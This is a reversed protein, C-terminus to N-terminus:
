NGGIVRASVIKEATYPEKLVAIVLPEPTRFRRPVDAFVRSNKEFTKKHVSKFHVVYTVMSVSPGILCQTEPLPASNLIFFFLAKKDKNWIWGSDYLEFENDRLKKKLYEFAKLLKAGVVDEKGQRAAVDILVLKNNGARTKIDDLTLEKKVFFDLSPQKLFQHARTKFREAKAYDMAAAANREKQIPDVVIIPSQLKSANLVHLANGKHANYFDIITKDKWGQSAKLLNVFGGYYITLIDVVHGSFGKIYSEAGYVGVAKCFSKTLKIEDALKKNKALHKRVWAVHLPSCDTINAAADPDKIDLVPIIEFTLPSASTTLQFYDRSGHLRAVSVHKLKGLVGGLLKSIDKFRYFYDFAVFVDVDHDGPLYTNKALSGGVIVRAKLKQKKLEHELAGVVKKVQEMVPTIDAHLRKKALSLVSSLSTSTSTKGKKTTKRAKKAM